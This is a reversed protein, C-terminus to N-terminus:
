RAFLGDIVDQYRAAIAPRRMKLTQTLTGAEMTFPDLLLAFVGVRDDPRYGPRDKIERTLEARILKAIAPDDLDGRDSAGAEPITLNLGQQQVWQRLADLNTVILAGLQKQDQGVLMMQDIYPSRICADEIPQPEINEGSALVITDKARGTLVLQDGHSVMGLDGSDFWGDADIAKATAEPTKYYGSMVQPGRLLVLGQQRPGLTQRTQPEVIRVETEPLPPGSAGRLNRDLRRANTIPATETLGYGVLLPIKVIEYFLDLHRALSGGGSIVCQLQGGTAARVKRYVLRDGLFHLPALALAKLRAFLRDSGSPDPRELDLNTAVRRARVYQESLGFFFKVLRQRSAPQERFTRQVGEYLSDWLRPVGVMYQPQHRRLDNKFHRISTYVLTCGRSLLFYETSREYAHWSPLISLARDGPAPALVVECNNVQHLLNGHSLMVGKPQGTTGSTYLLTALTAPTQPVPQWESERGKAMVQVFNLIPLPADAPAEEDALLIIFSVPLDDLEPQLKQLTALDQVVLATSDSYRFIYLLEQRDSQASRVANAAGAALIGQDAIFWRPSNDAFLAIKSEPQTGLAQLGAAFQQIQAALERYTLRVEPESHPDHLALIDPYREAVRPWLQSLATLDTYDSAAPM